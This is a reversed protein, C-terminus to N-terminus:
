VLFECRHVIIVAYPHFPSEIHSSVNRRQECYESKGPM